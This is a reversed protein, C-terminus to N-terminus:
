PLDKMEVTKNNGPEATDPEAEACLDCLGYLMTKRPNISFHHAQELHAYLAALQACDPHLIRGCRECKFLFCDGSPHACYQYCAGDEMNIKHIHGAQELRELQRYVTTLGVSFGQRRLDEVLELATICGERKAALCALVAQQQKTNYPM